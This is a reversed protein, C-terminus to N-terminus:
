QKVRWKTVTVEYSEAPYLYFPVDEIGYNYSREYYVLHPSGNYPVVATVRSCDHKSPENEVEIVGDEELLDMLEDKDIKHKM